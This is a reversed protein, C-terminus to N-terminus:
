LAVRKTDWWTVAVALASWEHSAIGYLPGREKKTGIAKQKGPGFRDLLAQRVMPDKARMSQCLHLKVESRYVLTTAEPGFAQLYRGIWICTDFTEKGVPMGYCAIGEIALTGCSRFMADNELCDLLESNAMIGHLCVREEDPSGRFIVYASEEPGPDIAVLTM